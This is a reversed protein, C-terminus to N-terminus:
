VIFLDGYCSSCLVLESKFARLGSEEISLNSNSSNAALKVPTAIKSSREIITSNVANLTNSSSQTLQSLLKEMEKLLYQKKQENSDETDPHVENMDKKDESQGSQGESEEKGISADELVAPARSSHKLFKSLYNSLENLALKNVQLQTSLSRISEDKEKYKQNLKKREMQYMTIYDVITDTECQLQLIMHELEQNKDKLDANEAMVKTFKEELLKFNNVHESSDSSMEVPDHKKVTETTKEDFAKLKEQLENREGELCQIKSGLDEIKKLQRDIIEEQEHSRTPKLETAEKNAATQKELNKNVLAIYDNLDKNERELDQIRKKVGDMLTQSSNEAAGETTEKKVEDEEDGWENSEEKSDDIKDVSAMHAKSTEVEKVAEPARELVNESEVKRSEKEDISQNLKFEQAQLKTTLDLNQQTVSVYADQLEELQNKLEKNQQVARSLAQKDNHAQDLLANHEARDKEYNEMLKNLNSIAQEKEEVLKILGNHDQVLIEIQQKFYKIENELLQEKSTSGADNESVPENKASIASDYKVKMENLDKILTDNQSTSKNLLLELSDIKAFAAEREDTMRNIQDVLSQIQNQLQDVFNQYEIKIEERQRSLSEENESLKTELYANKEKLDNIFKEDVQSLYTEVKKGAMDNNSFQTLKLSLLELQSKLDLNSRQLFQVEEEKQGHRDNAENLRLRLEQNLSLTSNLESKLRDVYRQNELDFTPSNSLSNSNISQNAFHDNQQSVIVRELEGIKERSAKLRGLLEDNEDQTKDCKKVMQQLNSHLETKEAVLIGITQVHLQLQEKLYDTQNNYNSIETLSQYPFPSKQGGNSSNAQKNQVSSYQSGPTSRGSTYTSEHMIPTTEVLLLNDKYAETHEHNSHSSSHSSKSSEKFKKLKLKAAALKEDKESKTSNGNSNSAQQTELHSTM